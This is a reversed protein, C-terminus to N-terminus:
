LFSIFYYFFFIEDKRMVYVYQRKNKNRKADKKMM